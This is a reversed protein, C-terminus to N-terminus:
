WSRRCPPSSPCHLGAERDEPARRRHPIAPHLVYSALPLTAERHGHLAPDIAAQRVVPDEGDTIDGGTIGEAFSSMYFREHYGHRGRGSSTNLANGAASRKAASKRPMSTRTVGMGRSAMARTTAISAGAGRSRALHRLRRKTHQSESVKQTPKPKSASLGRPNVHAAWLAPALVVGSVMVLLRLYRVALKCM